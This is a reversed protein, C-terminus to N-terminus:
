ASSYYASRFAISPLSSSSSIQILFQRTCERLLNAKIYHAFVPLKPNGYIKAANLAFESVKRYPWV